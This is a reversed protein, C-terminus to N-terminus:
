YNEFSVEAVVDLASFRIFMTLPKEMGDPECNPSPEIYYVFSKQGRSAIEHRDPKGLLALVEQEGLRQAKLEDKITFIQEKMDRRIGDCGGTDERFTADDFGPIDPKSTCGCLLTVSTGLIISYMIKRM